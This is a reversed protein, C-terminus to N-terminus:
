QPGSKILRAKAKGVTQELEELSAAKIKKVSKFRRLLREATSKGIGPIGELESQLSAKSRRQRHFTIAFRHAENRIAQLLQLSPSRKSIHLPVPDNPLYLEEMRKAIGIVPIKGYLGLDQLALGASSLQGKGGDILILQPLPAGEKLLRAYRRTVIEKMSAFDDPGTVTKIGFHRYNKRDPKGRFFRVMAAVPSSGQINSNDFCEIVLPAEDLRLDQRLIELPKPVSISREIKLLERDKKLQLANKLSLDTLRRKDGIKPVINEVGAELVSIRVNSLVTPAASGAEQKMQHYTLAILEEETEDLKKKLAVTRSYVIAGEKIQLFNIYAFDPTTNITIVDINTLAKNVVTSKTQFRELADLKDKFRQAVEYNFSAANQNMQEVLYGEVLSMTGKLVNRAQSIEELYDQENQLGECPGKCNGIHYELCVKFRKRGINAPTLSLTCTRITYLQRLLELVNKMASVSSYPGFYEGLVPNYKRTSIIRPFPEQTICIFPFTKDDKLLINYRPQNEKILNNELLLADFESNALTYDLRTAESVMKQTKRNQGKGFYASVRKKLSKAKGVYILAGHKNYFCYVGPADPLMKATQQLRVSM